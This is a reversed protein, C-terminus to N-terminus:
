TEYMHRMYAGTPGKQLTTTRKTGCKAFKANKSIDVTEEHEPILKTHKNQM